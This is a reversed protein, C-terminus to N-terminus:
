VSTASRVVSVSPFMARTCLKARMSISTEPMFFIPSSTSLAWIGTSDQHATAVTIVRVAVVSVM